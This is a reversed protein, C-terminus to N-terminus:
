RSLIDDLEADSMNAVNKADEKRNADLREVADIIAAQDKIKQTQKGSLRWGFILAALFLGAVGAGAIYPILSDMM